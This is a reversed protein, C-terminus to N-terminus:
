AVIKFCRMTKFKHVYVTEFNNCLINRLETQSHYGQKLPYCNIINQVKDKMFFIWVNNICMENTGHFTQLNVGVLSFLSVDKLFKAEM